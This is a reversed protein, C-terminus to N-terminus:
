VFFLVIVVLLVFLAFGTWLLLTGSENQPRIKSLDPFETLIALQKTAEFSDFAKSIGLTPAPEPSEVNEEAFHAHVPTMEEHKDQLGNACDKLDDAIQRASQYREDANKALAKAVIYDMIQPSEPNLSKPPPPNSNMIQFMIAHVNEGTFPPKGTLMEYLVIGLSFIDTRQDTGKGSVQEPSMYQPSGLVMGTLTKVSSSPIRAIGFDTIKVLGSRLIMINSPKIDRHVINHEHAYALGEAIQCAIDVIRDMGLKKGSDLIQRLEQGELYEMAMYAHGDSKGVDYLSVINPHNIKGTAKAEQYFRAEYEEIEDEGLSLNLTKIAVTRDLLPDHAKYVVGMAGRGLESIVEYRGIRDPLM